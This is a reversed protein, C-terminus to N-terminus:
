VVGPVKAREAALKVQCNQVEQTRYEQKKTGMIVLQNSM